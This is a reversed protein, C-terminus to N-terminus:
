HWPLVQPSADPPQQQQQETDDGSPSDMNAQETNNGRLSDIHQQLDSADRVMKGTEASCMALPRGNYQYWERVVVHLAAENSTISGLCQQRLDDALAGLDKTHFYPPAYSKYPNWLAGQHPRSLNCLMRFMTRKDPMRHQGPHATFLVFEDMPVLTRHQWGIPAAPSHPNRRFLRRLWNSCPECISCRRSLHCTPPLYKSQPPMSPLGVATCIDAQLCWCRLRQDNRHGARHAMRERNAASVVWSYVMETPTCFTTIACAIEQLSRHRRNQRPETWVGCTLCPETQLSPM